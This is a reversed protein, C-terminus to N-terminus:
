LKTNFFQIARKISNIFQTMRFTCLGLVSITLLQLHPGNALPLDCWPHSTTHKNLRHLRTLIGLIVDGSRATSKSPVSYFALLVSSFVHHFCFRWSSGRLVLFVASRLLSRLSARLPVLDGGSKERREGASAEVFTSGPSRNRAGASVGRPSRYCEGLFHVSPGRATRNWRSRFWSIAAPESGACEFSFGAPRRTPGENRRWHFIQRLPFDLRGHQRGDGSQVHLAASGFLATESIWDSQHVFNYNYKM